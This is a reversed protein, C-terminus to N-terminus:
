ASNKEENESNFFKKVLVLDDMKKQNKKNESILFEKKRKEKFNKVSEVAQHTYLYTKKSKELVQEAKLLKKNLNEIEIKIKKCFLDEVIFANINIIKGDYKRIRNYSENIEENKNVIDLKINNIIKIVEALAIKSKNEAIKRVRMLAELKFEFKSM